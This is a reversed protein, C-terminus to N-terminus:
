CSRRSASIHWIPDAPLATSLSSAFDRQPSTISSQIPMHWLSMRSRQQPMFASPTIWRTETSYPVKKNSGYVSSSSAYVLHAVPTNGEDYSHRCAELINYFGVLNSEIYADPNTISYRVGAQAGLNVVVEPRYQAFVSNIKEKDALDGKVFVFNEFKELEELRSEKLRPDYYNNMNDLGIVKVSPVDTLLRKSLNSGIFGAAGTVLVVKNALDIKTKEAKLNETM